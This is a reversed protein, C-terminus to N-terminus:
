LHPAGLPPPLRGYDGHREGRHLVAGGGLHQLTFGHVIGYWPVAVLAIAATLLFMLANVWVLPPKPEPRTAENM